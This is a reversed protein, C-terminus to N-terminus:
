SGRRRCNCKGVTLQEGVLMYHMEKLVTQVYSTQDGVVGDMDVIDESPDKVSTYHSHQCGPSTGRAELVRMRPDM